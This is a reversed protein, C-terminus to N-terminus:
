RERDLSCCIGPSAYVPSSDDELVRTITSSELTGLFIGQAGIQGQTALFLFRRGDPLFHPWRHSNQGEAFVTAPGAIGGTASVRMLPSATTPAFLIVGDRSWTGGRGIPADAISQPLGGDLDLRKLKGEAFFAITKGDPSWFPYIAGETGLLPRPTIQDIRRVWLSSVNNSTVVFTLQRGDPSLAFSMPDSTAPTSVEFRAPLPEPTRRQSYLYSGVGLAAAMTILIGASIWAVGPLRSNVRTTVALPGSGTDATWKLERLLDRATQWRDDPDKALCTRIVRDLMPPLNAIPPPEQTRITEAVSSQSDAAFAKVGAIMEYLVSGFAFIDSRADAPKGELQEPAMYQLTGLIIGASTIDLSRPSSPSDGVAASAGAKSLGFDLLKAGAKTLMINSPKLDRHVLGARHVRDLASAIQIGHELAQNLALPGRFLRAALTEGDLYEMVLFDIGDVRGVDHLTCIHPHNLAAVARAEREFRDRATQDAAIHMPLLKIAVTRDLRTDRAKFVVGMGGAGIQSSLEYPGIRQGERVHSTDPLHAVTELFSDAQEHSVLLAEVQQRLEADGECARALYTSRAHASLPLAAAFLDKVRSWDEPRM